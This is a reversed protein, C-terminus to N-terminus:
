VYDSFVQLTIPETMIGGRPRPRDIAETIQM